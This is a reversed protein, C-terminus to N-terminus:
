QKKNSTYYSSGGLSFETATFLLSLLLISVLLLLLLLLLLLKTSPITTVVLLIYMNIYRSYTLVLSLAHQPKDLCIGLVIGMLKHVFYLRKIQRSPRYACSLRESWSDSLTEDQAVQRPINLMKTGSNNKKLKVV